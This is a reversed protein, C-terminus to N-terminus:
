IKKFKMKMENTNIYINGDDDIYKEDLSGWEIYMNIQRRTEASLVKLYLDNEDLYPNMKAFGVYRIVKKADVHEINANEDFPTKLSNIDLEVSDIEYREIEVKYNSLQNHKFNIVEFLEEFSLGRNIDSVVSNIMDFNVNYSCLKTIYKEFVDKELEVTLLSSFINRVEKNNYYDYDYRYRIRNPRNYYIPNLNSNSCIISLHKNDLIGDFVTLFAKQTEWDYNKEFEDFIIVFKRDNSSIFTMIHNLNKVSYAQDMLLVPMNSRKAVLKALLTKGVGKVGELLVNLKGYHNYADLIFECKEEIDGYLTEPLVIDPRVKLHVSNMDLFPSYVKVPIKDSIENTPIEVLSNKHILYKM